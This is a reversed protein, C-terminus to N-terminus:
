TEPAPVSTPCKGSSTLLTVLATFAALALGTNALSEGLVSVFIPLRKGNYEALRTAFKEAGPNPLGAANVWGGEVEVLTPEPYGDRPEIGISKTVAAGAGMELAQVVRELSSGHVGSALM